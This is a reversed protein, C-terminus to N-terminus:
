WVGGELLALSVGLWLLGIAAAIWDTKALSAPELIVGRGDFSRLTMAHATREARAMVRPLWLSPLGRALMWTTSLGSAPARLRVARIINETEEILKGTQVLIQTILGAVVVPLRLRILAEQLQGPDLTSLTTLAVLTVELGKVVIRSVDFLGSSFATGSGGSQFRGAVVALLFLPSGLLVGWVAIGLVLRVPVRLAVLWLTLAAATWLLSPYSSPPILLIGALLCGGLFVRTPPALVRLGPSSGWLGFRVEKLM